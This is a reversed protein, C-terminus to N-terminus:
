HQAEALVQRPALLWNQQTSIPPEQPPWASQQPVASHRPPVQWYLPLRLHSAISSQGGPDYQV